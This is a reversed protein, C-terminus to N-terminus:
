RLALASGRGHGIAPADGLWEGNFVSNLAQIYWVRRQRQARRMGGHYTTEPKDPITINVSDSCSTSWSVCSRQQDCGITRNGLMEPLSPRGM